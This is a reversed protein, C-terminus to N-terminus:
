TFRRQAYIEVFFRSLEEIGFGFRIEEV